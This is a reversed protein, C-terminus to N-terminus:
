PKGEVACRTAREVGVADGLVGIEADCRRAWVLARDPIMALRVQVVLTHRNGTGNGPGYWVRTVLMADAKLDRLIEAQERPTADEFMSGRIEIMRRGPANRQRQITANREVVETRTATIANLKDADIVDYGHFDLSSRVIQDVGVLSDESCMATPHDYAYNANTHTKDGNPPRDFRADGPYPEQLSGCTAPLAVIRHIEREGAPGRNAHLQMPTLDASVCAVLALPLM